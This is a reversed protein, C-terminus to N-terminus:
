RKNNYPKIPQGGDRMEWSACSDDQNTPQLYKHCYISCNVGPHSHKCNQCTHGPNPPLKRSTNKIGTIYDSLSM